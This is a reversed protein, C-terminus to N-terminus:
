TRALRQNPFEVAVQRKRRQAAEIRSRRIGSARPTVVEGLEWAALDLAPLRPDVPHNQLEMLPGFQRVRM